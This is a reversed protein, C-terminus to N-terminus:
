MSLTASIWAYEQEAICMTPIPWQLGATIFSDNVPAAIGKGPHAAMSRNGGDFLGAKAAPGTEVPRALALKGTRQRKM